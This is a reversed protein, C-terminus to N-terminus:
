IVVQRGVQQNVNTYSLPVACLELPLSTQEWASVCEAVKYMTVSSKSCCICGTAEDCGPIPKEEAGAREVRFLPDVFWNGYGM